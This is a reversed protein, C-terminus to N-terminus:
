TSPANFNEHMQKLLTKQTKKTADNDGFRTQIAEFLTKASVVGMSTVKGDK